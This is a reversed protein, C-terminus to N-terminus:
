KEPTSGSVVCESSAKCRVLHILSMCTMQKPTKSFSNVKDPNLLNRRTGKRRIRRKQYARLLFLLQYM